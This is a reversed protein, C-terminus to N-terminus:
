VIDPMPEADVAELVAFGDLEPMQIDLFILEPSHQKIAEVAQRGDACAAILEVEPRETLLNQLRERALDEDDAILTRVKTTM